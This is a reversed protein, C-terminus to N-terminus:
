NLGSMIECKRQLSYNYHPKDIIDFFKQIRVRDEETDFSFKLDAYKPYPFPFRVIKFLQSNDYFYKTVHEFHEPRSFLSYERIFIDSRLIEINQGSPFKPDGLTTCIEAYESTIRKMMEPISSIDLLPSDANLRIFYEPSKEILIQLFRSAVNEEEGKHLCIGEAKCFDYIPQNEQKESVAAVINEPPFLTKVSDILHGFSPRGKFGYLTKGPFRSSGMRGQIIVLTDKM